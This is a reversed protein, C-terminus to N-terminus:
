KKKQPKKVHQGEKPKKIAKTKTARELAEAMSPHSDKYEQSVPTKYVGLVGGM